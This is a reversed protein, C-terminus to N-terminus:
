QMVFDTFLIQEVGPKGLKTEIFDQVLKTAEDRLKMKGQVPVLDEYKQTAFLTNLESVIKPMHQALADAVAQDRTMAEAYVQLLHPRGDSSQLSVVFMPRGELTRIKTYIPDAYVPEADAQEAATDDGGSLLFFAAAGGGGLLLILVIGLIIFLKKKSKKEEPAAQEQEEAM